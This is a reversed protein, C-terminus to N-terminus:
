YYAENTRKAELGMTAYGAALFYFLDGLPPISGSVHVM